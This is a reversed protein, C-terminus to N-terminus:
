LECCLILVANWGEKILYLCCKFFFCSLEYIFFLFLFGPCLNVFDLTCRSGPTNLVHLRLSNRGEYRCIDLLSLLMCPCVIYKKEETKRSQDNVFHWSFLMMTNLFLYDHLEYLKFITVLWWNVITVSSHHYAVVISYLPFFLELKLRRRTYSFLFLLRFIYIYIYGGIQHYFTLPSKKEPGYKHCVHMRTLLTDLYSTVQLACLKFPM